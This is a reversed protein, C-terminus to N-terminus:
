QVGVGVGDGEETKGPRTGPMGPPLNFQPDAAWSPRKKNPERSPAFARLLVALRYRPAAVVRRAGQCVRRAKAGERSGLLQVRLGVGDGEETKGPRTGPMGPPLNFQPDAAWSPRKKNPERSPAFARLLVALRYRPAAVVRRAGQCVRRAKAGERSGLLQVRLGVGDGEETKGPRTGPMGPPLNFQPDAAWSPRKKNPERSPAFARLLVALRYRPAAVVRRAGQCVRRAKAGERSGLLQVRLGVGDGEETKGPRTGPMGPPLNFQPDAAWSPRKKNPERSPAFARLLVALRYRPAAVVRRAGQCVRRAKAGERSGLLQVRLGVGDGEETKGPRTGPMGPPLNFQPDAAWSPRKKNPERSPAFARLLVALRYRPAAVVRRAGQCVRRAKAGERSGLLICDRGPAVLSAPSLAPQAAAAQGVQGLSLLLALGHRM